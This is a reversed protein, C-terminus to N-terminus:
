EADNNFYKKIIVKSLTGILAGETFCIVYILYLYKNNIKETEKEIYEKNEELLEKPYLDESCLYEIEERRKKDLFDGTKDGVFYSAILSVAGIISKVLSNKTAKTM